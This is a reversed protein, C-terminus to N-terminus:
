QRREEKRVGDVDAALDDHPKRAAHDPFMQRDGQPFRDKSERDSRQATNQEAEPERALRGDSRHEIGVDLHGIRQRADHKRRDERQPEPQADPGLDREAHRQHEEDHEEIDILTHSFDATRYQGIAPHQPHVFPLQHAV